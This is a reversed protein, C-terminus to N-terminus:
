LAKGSTFACAFPMGRAIPDDRSHLRYVDSKHSSVFSALLPRSSVEWRSLGLQVDM